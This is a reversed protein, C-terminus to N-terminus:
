SAIRRAVPLQHRLRMIAPCDLVAVPGDDQAVQGLLLGTAAADLTPPVAEMRQALGTVTGLV